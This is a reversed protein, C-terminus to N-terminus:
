DRIDMCQQLYAEGGLVEASPCVAGHRKLARVIDSHGKWFARTLPTYGNREPQGVDAGRAILLEVMALHDEEAAVILPSVGAKNAADELAADKELLLEAVPVSGSYAAAHLPTFGGANRAMVDAGKALLLAAIEPQGSLAAEILPTAQDMARSDVNAGDNLLREVSAADGAKVADFLPEGAVADASMFAVALVALMRHM